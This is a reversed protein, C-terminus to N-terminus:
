LVRVAVRVHGIVTEVCHSASIVKYWGDVVPLYKLMTLDVTVRGTLGCASWFEPSTDDISDEALVEVSRGTAASTDSDGSVQVRRSKLIGENGVTWFQLHLQGLPQANSVAAICEYRFQPSTSNCVIRTRDHWGQVAAEVIWPGVSPGTSDPSRKGVGSNTISSLSPNTASPAITFDEVTFFSTPGGEFTPETSTSSIIDATAVEWSYEQGTGSSASFSGGLFRLSRPLSKAELISVHVRRTKLQPAEVTLPHACTSAATLPGQLQQKKPNHTITVTSSGRDNGAPEFVVVHAGTPFGTVNDESRKGRKHRQRNRDNSSSESASTTSFSSTSSSTSSSSSSRTGRRRRRRRQRSDRGEAGDPKAPPASVPPDIYTGMEFRATSSTAAESKVNAGAQLESSAAMEITCSLRLPTSGSVPDRLPVERTQAFLGLTALGLLTERVIVRESQPPSNPSPLLTTPPPLRRPESVVSYCELVLKSESTFSRVDLLLNVCCGPALPLRRVLSSVSNLPQGSMSVDTSWRLGFRIEAIGPQVSSPLQSFSINTLRIHAAVNNAVALHPRSSLAESSAGATLFDHLADASRRDREAPEDGSDPGTSASVAEEADDSEGDCLPEDAGPGGLLLHEALSCRLPANPPLQRVVSGVSNLVASGSGRVMGPLSSLLSSSAPGTSSASSMMKDRLSLGRTYIDRLIIERHAKSNTASSVGPPPLPVDEGTFQSGREMQQQTPHVDSPKLSAASFFAPGGSKDSQSQQRALTLSSQPPPAEAVNPPEKIIAEPVAGSVAAVGGSDDKNNAASEHRLPLPQRKGKPAVLPDFFTVSIHLQLRGICRSKTAYDVINFWGHVTTSATLSALSLAVRGVMIPSKRGSVDPTVFVEGVLGGQKSSSMHRLYQMLQPELTKVTYVLEPVPRDVCTATRPMVTSAARPAAEGWFRFQVSCHDVPIHSPHPSDAADVANVLSDHLSMSLVRLRLEGRTPGQLDPPISTAYIVKM